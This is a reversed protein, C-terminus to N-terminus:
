PTRETLQIPELWTTYFAQGGRNLELKHLSNSNAVAGDPVM